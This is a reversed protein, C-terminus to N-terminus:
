RVRQCWEAVAFARVTAASMERTLGDSRCCLHTRSFFATNARQRPHLEEEVLIGGYEGRNDIESGSPFAEIGDDRAEAVVRLILVTVVIQHLRQTRERRRFHRRTLDDGSKRR